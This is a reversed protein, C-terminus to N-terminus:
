KAQLLQQVLGLRDCRHVHNAEGRHVLRGHGVCPHEPIPQVVDAAILTQQLLGAQFRIHREQGQQLPQQCVGFPGLPQGAIAQM